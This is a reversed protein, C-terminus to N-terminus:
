PYYIITNTRTIDWYDIGDSVREVQEILNGQADYSNTFYTIREVAGSADYIVIKFPTGQGDNSYDVSYEETWNVGHVNRKQYKIRYNQSDYEYQEYSLPKGDGDVSTCNILNGQPDYTYIAEYSRLNNDDYQVENILQGKRDWFKEQDRSRYDNTDLATKGLYGDQDYYYIVVDRYTSEEWYYSTIEKVLASIRGKDDYEYQYSIDDGGEPNSTEESIILGEPSFRYIETDAPGEDTETQFEKVKGKLGLQEWGCTVKRIQGAPSLAEKATAPDDSTVAAGAPPDPHYEYVYDSSGWGDYEHVCNGLADYDYTFDYHEENQGAANYADMTLPNGHEDNSYKRSGLTKGKCNYDTARVRYGQEDYQCITYREMNGQEDLDRIKVLLGKNDYEFKYANDFENNDNYGQYHVLNGQADWIMQNYKERGIEWSFYKQPIRGMYDYSWMDYDVLEMISKILVGQEDYIFEQLSYLKGMEDVGRIETIRNGSDIKYEFTQSIQYEGWNPEVYYRTTFGQEDFWYKQEGLETPDSSSSLSKVRGKLGMALCPNTALHPTVNKLAPNPANDSVLNGFVLFLICFTALARKM